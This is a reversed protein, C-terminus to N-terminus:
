FEIKFLDAAIGDSLFKAEPTLSVHNKYLDLRNEDIHTQIQLIFYDFYEPGFVSKLENLDIGKDLRLRTMIFENFQNNKTLLEETIPLNDGSIGKIYKINNKINWLRKNIGNYSHASPGIGLYAKGTWYALNNQSFFGKKGFNSFEYHEYGKNKM